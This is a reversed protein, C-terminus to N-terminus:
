DSFIVSVIKHGTASITVSGDNAIPLISIEEEALNVLTAHTFQRLPKLGLQITDSSINYGRVLWGKGNEAAKIASIIFSEPSSAIFSGTDPIEGPHIGTEIAGLETQFAYAQQCAERWDGTHPIISYSFVSKGQVQGDPTELSPGAHGQRFPM